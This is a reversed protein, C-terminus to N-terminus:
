ILFTLEKKPVEYFMQWKFNSSAVLLLAMAHRSMLQKQSGQVKLGSKSLSPNPSFEIAAELISRNKNRWRGRTQSNESFNLGDREVM